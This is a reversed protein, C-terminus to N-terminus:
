LFLCSFTRKKFKLANRSIIKLFQENNLTEETTPINCMFQLSLGINKSSNFGNM